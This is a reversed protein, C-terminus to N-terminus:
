QKGNKKPIRGREFNPCDTIKYTEVCYEECIALSTKEATWGVVQKHGNIWRCSSGSYAQTCDICINPETCVEGHKQHDSKLLELNDIPSRTLCSPTCSLIESVTILCSASMRCKLSEWLKVRKSVAEEGWIKKALEIQSLGARIRYQQLNPVYYASQMNQYEDIKMVVKPNM